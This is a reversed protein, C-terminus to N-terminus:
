VIFSRIVGEDGGDEKRCIRIRRGLSKEYWSSGRWIVLVYRLEFEM